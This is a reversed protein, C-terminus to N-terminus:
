ADGIEGALPRSVGDVEVTDRELSKAGSGPARKLRRRDRLMMKAESEVVRNAFTDPSAGRSPDYLHAKNIVAMVLQQEVDEQDSKSFGPKTCLRVSTIRVLARVYASLLAHPAPPVGM